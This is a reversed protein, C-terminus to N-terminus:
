PYREKNSKDGIISLEMINTEFPYLPHLGKDSRVAASQLLSTAESKQKFRCWADRMGCWYLEYNFVGTAWNDMVIFLKPFLFHCMKSAFVPSGRKIESALAYLSAVDDWCLDAICPEAASSAALKVYQATVAGLCQRGRAALDEKTNPPRPGRCAKWQSLRDVTKSWWQQTVGGARVEYIDHYDANHIDRPWNSKRWWELGSKLNDISIIM